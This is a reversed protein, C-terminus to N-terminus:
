CSFLSVFNEEFFFVCSVCWDRKKHPHLIQWFDTSFQGFFFQLFHPTTTRWQMNRSMSDDLKEFDHFCLDVFFFFIHFWFAQHMCGSTPRYMNKWSQTISIYMLPDNYILGSIAPSAQFFNRDHLFFFILILNQAFIGPQRWTFFAPLSKFCARPVNNGVSLLSAEQLTWHSADQKSCPIRSGFRKHSLQKQKQHHLSYPLWM